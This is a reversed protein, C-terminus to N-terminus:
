NEIIKFEVTENVITLEATGGIPMTLLPSTHGFDVNAIIPIDQLEQKSKIIKMLLDKSMKTEKQFRGICIAKVGSFDSQHILSQLQRDFLQPNIEADEELILLSDELMPWYETGQLANLCRMHGGIIRGLAHGTNIIWYGSNDIFERNEQDLYWQDDSWEKSPEINFSESNTCAKEFYDKTYTFGKKMAWTSFHPGIYCIMGTKTNIANALVTIDSFGCFVKPNKLILDYDIYQLLQNANYGGIVSFIADVTPDKFADHLDSVRSEVSSSIFEDLESVNKGFSLKFGFKELNKISEAIIEDTLLSLSRSPAIIRIHDGKELKRPRITNKIM